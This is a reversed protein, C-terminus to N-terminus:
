VLTFQAVSISSIAIDGIRYQLFRDKIYQPKNNIIYICINTDLMIKAM